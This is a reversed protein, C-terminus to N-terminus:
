SYKSLSVHFKTCKAFTQLDSEGKKNYDANPLLKYGFGDSHTGIKRALHFFPIFLSTVTPVFWEMWDLVNWNACSALRAPFIFNHIWLGQSLQGWGGAACSYSRHPGQPEYPKFVIYTLSEHEPKAHLQSLCTSSDWLPPGVFLMSASTILNSWAEYICDTWSPDMESFILPVESINHVIHIVGGVRFCSTKLLYDM